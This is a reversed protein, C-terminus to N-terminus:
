CLCVPVRGYHVVSSCSVSERASSRERKGFRRQWHSELSARRAEVSGTGKECASVGDCFCNLSYVFSTVTRGTHYRGICLTVDSLSKEARCM